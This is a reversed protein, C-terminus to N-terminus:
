LQNFYDSGVAGSEEHQCEKRTATEEKAQRAKTEPVGIDSIRLEIPCCYGPLRGM